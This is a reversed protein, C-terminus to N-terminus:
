TKLIQFSAAQENQLLWHSSVLDTSAQLVHKNFVLDEKANICTTSFSIENALMYM